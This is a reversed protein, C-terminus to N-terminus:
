KSEMSVAGMEQLEMLIELEIVSLKRSIRKGCIMESFSEQIEFSQGDVFLQEASFAFRSSSSHTVKISNGQELISEVEQTSFANTLPPSNEHRPETILQGFATESLKELEDLISLNETAKIQNLATQNVKHPNSDISEALDQYRNSHEQSSLQEALLDLSRILIENQSPARFGVSLTICDDSTATGWHAVGAPIYLMDGAKVQHVQQCDFEELLKLDQNDQLGTTHDCTQGLQWERSGSAQILFVDYYDFHPGVGGGVTAYSAMIDELRWKPLFTFQDLLDAAKKNWQDLGQVLLTWDKEGYESFDTKSFPGNQCRWNGVIGHGSILRSECNDKAALKLLKDVSVIDESLKIADSFLQPQQQWVETLFQQSNAKKFLTM